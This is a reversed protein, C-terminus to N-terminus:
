PNGFGLYSTKQNAIDEVVKSIYQAIKMKGDHENCDVCLCTLNDLFIVLEEDSMSRIRDANSKVKKPEYCRCKGALDGQILPCIDEWGCSNCKM